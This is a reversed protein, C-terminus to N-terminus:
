ASSVILLGFLINLANLLLATRGFLRHIRRIHASRKKNVKLQFIGLTPTIILLLIVFFGLYAHPVKLHGQSAASVMYAAMTMGSIAFATGSIGLIKHKKLWGKDKRRAVTMGWVLLSFGLVVLFAHYPWLKMIEAPLERSPEAAAAGVPAAAITFISLYLARHLAIILKKLHCNEAGIDVDDTM